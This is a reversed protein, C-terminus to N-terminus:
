CLMIYRFKGARGRGRPIKGQEKQAQKKTNNKPPIDFFLNEIDYFQVFNFCSPFYRSPPVYNRINASLPIQCFYGSQVSYKISTISFHFYLSIGSLLDPHYERGSFTASHTSFFNLSPSISTCLHLCQFNQLFYQLSGKSQPSGPLSLLVRNDGGKSPLLHHLCKPLIPSPPHPYILHPILM